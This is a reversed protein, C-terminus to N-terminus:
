RPTLRNLFHDIGALARDRVTDDERLIEHAAEPGFFLTEVSPLRRAAREIAKFSVLKDASTGFLFAPTDVSELVGPRELVAISRLAAAVWGWSAPGMAIVPRHERWWLEDQYRAEDHTLIDKRFGPVKAPGDKWKWAPRRPDGFKCMAGVACRQLILPLWEPSVGLMPTSLIMANPAPLLVKEAVARLVLNGGMSHGVLVLAGNRREAWENWFRALDGIWLEFDEIFGTYDDRGLRGSGAQGRWDGATVRWGGIRWHEFSELYKEYADGLGPM